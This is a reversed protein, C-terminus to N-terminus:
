NSRARCWAQWGVVLLLSGIAWPLAVYLAAGVLLPGGGLNTLIGVLAVVGTLVLFTGLALAAGSVVLKLAM